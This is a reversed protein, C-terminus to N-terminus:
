RISNFNKFNRIKRYDIKINERGSVKTKIPEIKASRTTTTSSFDSTIEFTEYGSSDKLYGADVFYVLGFNFIGDKFNSPLKNEDAHNELDGVFISGLNSDVYGTEQDNVLVEGTEKNYTFIFDVGMGWNEIKWRTPDEDSQYLVLDTDVEPDEPDGFLLTYTFDGVFRPTWQEANMLDVYNFVASSAEKANGESDFTIAFISYKGEEPEESFPVMIKGTQSSIEISQIDGNVIGEFADETDEEKVVALKIMEVDEGIENIQAIVGSIKDKADYYKGAYVLDISYDTLEVGPMVIKFAGNNNARYLGGDNYDAMSILMEKAPFTIIGDELTGTLGQSKAEEVSMGQSIRLGALSGVSFMGNGWDMGVEQVMMYVANPDEANIELYWDQSDDWDGPDNYPYAAGFPNVLRFLGPQLENEQIEVEYPINDVGYLTTLFDEIFIGKGLSKWPAPIGINFKYESAGYLSTFENSINIKIDSFNDFGVEEPDYSVRITSKTEGQGFSVSSPIDFLDSEGSVQLPVNIASESGVRSISIDYYTETSSLKIVSPNSASFYIQDTGDIEAPTYELTEEQCSIFGLFSFLFIFMYLKDFIKM